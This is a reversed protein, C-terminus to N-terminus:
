CLSTIPGKWNDFGDIINILKYQTDKLMHVINKSVEGKDCIIFYTKNFDLYLQPHLILEIHSINQSYPIHAIVFDEKDRVDIILTDKSIIREFELCNM